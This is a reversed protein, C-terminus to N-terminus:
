IAVTDKIFCQNAITLWKGRHCNGLNYNGGINGTCEGPKSLVSEAQNHRGILGIDSASELRAFGDVCDVLVQQLSQLKLRRLNAFVVVGIIAIAALRLRPHQQTRGIAIV